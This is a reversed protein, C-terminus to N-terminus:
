NPSRMGDYSTIFPYVVIFNDREALADFGTQDIMDGETQHCGHLVMLMPVPARGDYASPVFVRYRRDRSGPYSKAAFTACVLEGARAAPPAVMVCLAALLCLDPLRFHMPAGFYM